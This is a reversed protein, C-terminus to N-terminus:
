EKNEIQEPTSEVSKTENATEVNVEEPKELVKEVEVKKVPKKETKTTSKKKPKEDSETNEAAGLNLDALTQISKRTKNKKDKKNGRSEDLKKLRAQFKEIRGASDIMTEQGTYFPHCNGCIEVELQEVTMGLTYISNCNSCKATATEYFEIVSKAM